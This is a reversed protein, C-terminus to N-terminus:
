HDRATTIIKAVAKYALWLLIAALTGACIGIMVCELKEYKLTEVAKGAKMIIEGNEGIVKTTIKAFAKGMAIGSIIGAILSVFIMIISTIPFEDGGIAALIRHGWGEILSDTNDFRRNILNTLGNVANDLHDAADQQIRRTEDISAQSDSRLLTVASALETRIAEASQGNLQSVAQAASALQNALSESNYTSGQASAQIATQVAEIKALVDNLNAM